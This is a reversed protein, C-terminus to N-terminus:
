TKLLLRLSSVSPEPMLPEVTHIENEKVGIVGHVNLLHSSNNSLGALISHFDTFMDIKEDKVINTRSKYGKTFDIIGRYL